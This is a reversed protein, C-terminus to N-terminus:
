SMPWSKFAGAQPCDAFHSIRMVVGADQLGGRVVPDGFVFGTLVGDKQQLLVNGNPNPELVIPMVSNPNSSSRAGIIEVGCASCPRKEGPRLSMRDSM